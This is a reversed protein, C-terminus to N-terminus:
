GSRNYGVTMKASALTTKKIKALMRPRTVMTGTSFDQKGLASM